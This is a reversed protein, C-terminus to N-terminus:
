CVRHRHCASKQAPAYGLPGRPVYGFERARSCARAIKRWAKGGSVLALIRHRPAHQIRRAADRPIPGM